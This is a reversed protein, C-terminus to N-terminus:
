EAGRVPTDGATEFACKAIFTRSRRELLGALYPVALMVVSKIWVPSSARWLTVVRAARFRAFVVFVITWMAPLVGRQTILRTGQTGTVDPVYRTLRRFIESGWSPRTLTLTSLPLTRRSGAFRRPRRM